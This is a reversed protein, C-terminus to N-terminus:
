AQEYPPPGDGRLTRVALDPADTVFGWVGSGALQRMRDPDNVVYCGLALGYARARVVFPSPDLGLDGDWAHVGGHGRQTAWAMAPEVSQGPILLYGTVIGRDLERVRDIAREDFSIISLRGDGRVPHSGVAAVVEDAAARAKIEVVLGLTSPLWELVEHLTPITVGRGRFPHAGDPAAFCAGADARRIEDMTLEAVAGTRDTTRDLTEDHIVALQGDATLHVDLEIADAAAEAALRFAEITNEPATASSGRHAVVLTM